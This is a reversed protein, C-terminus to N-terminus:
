VSHAAQPEQAQALAKETSPEAAQQIVTDPIDRRAPATETQRDGTDQTVKLDANKERLKENELRLDKIESQARDFQDHAAHAVHIGRSTSTFFSAFVSFAALMGGAKSSPEWRTKGVMNSLKDRFPFHHESWEGLKVWGHLFHGATKKAINSHGKWQIGTNEWSKLFGSVQKPLALAVGVGVALSALLAVKFDIFGYGFTLIAPHPGKYPEKLIDTEQSKVPSEM